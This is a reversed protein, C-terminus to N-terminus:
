ILYPSVWVLRRLYLLCGVLCVVVRRATAAAQHVAGGQVPLQRDRGGQAQAQSGQLSGPIHGSGIDARRLHLRHHHRWVDRISQHDAPCIM